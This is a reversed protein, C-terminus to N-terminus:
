KEFNCRFSLARWNNPYFDPHYFAFFGPWFVWLEPRPGPIGLYWSWLREIELPLHLNRFYRRVEEVGGADRIDQASGASLARALYWKKFAESELGSEPIAYDWFLRRNIKM